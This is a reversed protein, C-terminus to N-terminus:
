ASLQGTVVPLTRFLTNNSEPTENDDKVEEQQVGCEEITDPRAKKPQDVPEELIVEESLTIKTM